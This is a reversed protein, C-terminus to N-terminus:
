TPPPPRLASTVCNSFKAQRRNGSELPQTTLVVAFADIAPDIWLLTGTAGWHGYAAPSLFNGFSDDDNPWNLRWGYGWPRCRRDPEPVNPLRALQNATMSELTPRSIIGPEGAHIRLLHQCLRALDGATSLLGGWPAGL